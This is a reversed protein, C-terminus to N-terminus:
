SKWYKLCSQYFQYSYNKVNHIDRKKYLPKVRVIKFNELFIGSKFSINYIHASLGRTLRMCQIVVYEPIEDYGIKFKELFIGSKFSINYIHASPGRTLRMCQIVVYEPIEDYGASFKGQLNKQLM